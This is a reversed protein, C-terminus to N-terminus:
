APIKPLKKEYEEIKKQLKTREPSPPVAALAEKAEDLFLKVRAARDLKKPAFLQSIETFQTALYMLFDTRKVKPEPQSLLAKAKEFDGGPDAAAIVSLAVGRRVMLGHLREVEAPMPLIGKVIREVEVPRNRNADPMPFPLLIEEESLAPMLKHGTDAFRMASQGALARADSALKRFDIERAKAAPRGEDLIDAWEMEGRAMGADLVVQWIQARRTYENETAIISMLNKMTAQFDGKQWASKAAAWFFPPTGPKPPAPGKSTSCGGGTFAVVVAAVPVVCRWLRRM